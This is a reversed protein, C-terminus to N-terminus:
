QIQKGENKQLKFSANKTNDFQATLIDTVQQFISEASKFDDHVVRINYNGNGGYTLRLHDADISEAKQFAERLLMLGNDAYSHITYRGTIEVQPPKIRLRLLELFKKHKQTDLGTEKFAYDGQIFAQFAEYLFEFDESIKAYLDNYFKQLDLKEEKAFFALIKESAIEQKISNMVLIRQADSVRRLSVDIHGRQENISLVKCVIVKGEKVYDSINRIRGPSIESIHLMASKKYYDLSVFVSHHHIRTVTCVVLEGEEPLGKKHYLM